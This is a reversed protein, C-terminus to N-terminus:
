NMICNTSHIFENVSVGTNDSQLPTERSMVVDLVRWLVGVAQVFVALSEEHHIISTNAAPPSLSSKTGSQLVVNGMLASSNPTLYLSM